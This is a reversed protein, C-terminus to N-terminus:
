RSPNEPSHPDIGRQTKACARISQILLLLATDFNVPGHKAANVSFVSVKVEDVDSSRRDTGTLEFRFM